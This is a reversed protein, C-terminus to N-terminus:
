QFARMTSVLLAQRLNKVLFERASQLYLHGDELFISRFIGTTQERWAEVQEQPVTTDFRGGYATIPCGLPHTERRQYAELMQIDARLTPLVSALFEADALVPAPIGGYREVVADILERDGLHGIPPLVPECHPAGAASVFLQSAERGTQRRVEHLTEFAVVSGMSNGFFAFPHDEVLCDVVARSLDAVLLEMSRYPAENFRSERGPMEVVIVEIEPQLAAAWGRFAAPGNGAHPICFLQVISDSRSPTRRLM